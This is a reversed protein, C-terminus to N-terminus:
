RPTLAARDRAGGARAAATIAATDLSAPPAPAFRTATAALHEKATPGRLEAREVVLRPYDTLADDDSIAYDVLQTRVAVLADTLTIAGYTRVMLWPGTLRPEIVLAGTVTVADAGALDLGRAARNGAFVVNDFGVQAFRGPGNVPVKLLAGSVTADVVWLDRVAATAGKARAGLEILPDGERGRPDGAALSIVAVQALEVRQYGRLRLATGPARAGDLTVGRLAVSKGEIAVAGTFVVAGSGDPEVVFGISGDANGPRLTLGDYRGAALTVRLEAAGAAEASALAQALPLQLDAASTAHFTTTTMTPGPAADPAPPAADLTLPAAGTDAGPTPSRAGGGSGDKGCAAAALVIMTAVRARRMTTPLM